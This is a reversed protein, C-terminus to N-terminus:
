AAKRAQELQRIRAQWYDIGAADSRRIAECLAEVAEVMPTTPQTMDVEEVTRRAVCATLFPVCAMAATLAAVSPSM